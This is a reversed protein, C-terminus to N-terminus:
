FMTKTIYPMYMMMTIFTIIPLPRQRQETIWHKEMRISGDIQKMRKRYNIIEGSNDVVMYMEEEGPVPVYNDPIEPDLTWDDSAIPTSYRSEYWPIEHGALTNEPQNIATRIKVSWTVFFISILLLLTIVTKRMIFLVVKKIKYSLPVNKTNVRFWKTDSIKDYIRGASMSEGIVTRPSNAVYGVKDLGKIKVVIAEKDYENMPEKELVLKMGPKMFEKGHYYRTGTLTFYIGAM